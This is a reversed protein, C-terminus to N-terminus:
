EPNSLKKLLETAQKGGDTDPREKKIKEFQETLNKLEERAKKAQESEPYKAILTRLGDIAKEYKKTANDYQNKSNYDAAAALLGLASDLKLAADKEDTVAPKTEKPVETPAPPKPVETPKAPEEHKETDKPNDNKYVPLYRYYVELDLLAFCTTFLRGGAKATVDFPDPNPDWSGGNYANGPGVQLKVLRNRVRPNWFQWDPGGYNHIVQTGYYLYDIDLVGSEGNEAPQQKKLEQIGAVLAPNKQDWGLYQRCLLGVATTSPSADSTNTHGYASGVITQGAQVSDLFAMAKRITENPVAFGALHASRLAQIQWGTVFTDGAQGPGYRWGGAPLQANVIFNTAAKCYRNLKPEHTMGYFECLAMTAIAHEYM